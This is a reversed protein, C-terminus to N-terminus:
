WVLFVHPFEYIHSCIMEIRKTYKINTREFKISVVATGAPSKPVKPSAATPPLNGGMVMTQLAGLVSLLMRLLSVAGLVYIVMDLM